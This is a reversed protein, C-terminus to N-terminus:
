TKRNLVWKTSTISSALFDGVNIVSGINLNFSLSVCLNTQPFNPSMSVFHCIVETQNVDEEDGLTWETYKYLYTYGGSEQSEVWTKTDYLTLIVRHEATTSARVLYSSTVNEQKFLDVRRSFVNYIIDWGTFYSRGSPATNSQPVIFTLTLMGGSLEQRVRILNNAVELSGSIDFCQFVYGDPVYDAFQVNPDTVGNMVVCFGPPWKSGTLSGILSDVKLSSYVLMDSAKTQTDGNTIVGNIFQNVTTGDTFSVSRTTLTAVELVATRDKPEIHATARGTNEWLNSDNVLSDVKLSTYVANDSSQTLESSTIINNIVKNNDWEFARSKFHNAAVIAIDDKPEILPTEHGMNHWFNSQEIKNNVESTLALTDIGGDIGNSGQEPANVSIISWASGSEFKCAGGYASRATIVYRNGDAMGTDYGFAWLYFVLSDGWIAHYVPTSLSSLPIETGWLIFDCDESKESNTIRLKLKFPYPVDKSRFSFGDGPTVDVPLREVEKYTISYTLDDYKRLGKTAVEEVYEVVGPITFVLNDMNEQQMGDAGYFGSVYTGGNLGQMRGMMVPYTTFENKMTIRKNTRDITFPSEDGTNNKLLTQVAETTYISWDNSEVSAVASSDVVSTIWSKAGIRVGGDFIGGQTSGILQNEDRPMLVSLADVRLEEFQQKQEAEYTILDNIVQSTMLSYDNIRSGSSSSNVINTVTAFNQTLSAVNLGGIHVNYNNIPEVVGGSLMWLGDDGGGEDGPDPNFPSDDLSGSPHWNPYIM